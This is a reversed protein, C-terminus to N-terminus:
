ITKAPENQKKATPTPPPVYAPEWQRCWDGPNTSPFTSRSVTKEGESQTQVVVPEMRIPTNHCCWGVDDNTRLKPVFSLCDKCMQTPNHNMTKTPLLYDDDYSTQM